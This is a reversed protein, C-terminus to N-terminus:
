RIARRTSIGSAAMRFSSEIALGITRRRACAGSSSRRFVLVTKRTFGTSGSHRDRSTRVLSFPTCASFRRRARSLTRQWITAGAELGVSGSCRSCFPRAEGCRMRPWRETTSTPEWATGALRATTTTSRVARLQFWRYAGDARRLRPETDLPQGTQLRAGAHRSSGRCSRRSARCRQDEVAESRRRLRGHYERAARNVLELEGSATHIAVLAPINDLIARVAAREIAASRRSAEAGRHRHGPQVVPRDLWGARAGARCSWPVLSVRRRFSSAPLGSRLAAWERRFAELARDGDRSRSRPHVAALGSATRPQCGPLRPAASQRFRDRRNSDDHEGPSPRQGSHPAPRARCRPRGRRTASRRGSAAWRGGCSAPNHVHDNWYGLRSTAIM